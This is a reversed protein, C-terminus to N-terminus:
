RGENMLQLYRQCTDRVWGVAVGDLLQDPPHADLKHITNRYERAAAELRGTRRYCEALHFSVTASAPDLYRARELHQTAAPWQHQQSYLM